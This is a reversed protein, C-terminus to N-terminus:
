EKEDAFGHRSRLYVNHLQYLQLNDIIDMVQFYPTRRDIDLRIAIDKNEAALDRLFNNMTGRGVPAQNFFQKDDHLYRDGEPTVTIVVERGLRVDRAHPASELQIALVKQPKKLSATVIFFVLLLFVLDMFSTMSLAGEDEGSDRRIMAM